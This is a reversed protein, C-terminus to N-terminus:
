FKVSVTPVIGIGTKLPPDVGEPLASVGPEGWLVDISLHPAGTPIRWSAATPRDAWGAEGVHRLATCSSLALALACLPM